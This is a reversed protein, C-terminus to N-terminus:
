YGGYQTYQPQQEQSGMALKGSLIGAIVAFIISMVLIGPTFDVISCTISDTDLASNYTNNNGDGLATTAYQDIYGPCNASDNGKTNGLMQIIVPLLASLFVFVMVATIMGTLLGMGMQGKKGIPRLGNGKKNKM